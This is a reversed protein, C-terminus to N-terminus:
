VGAEAVVRRIDEITTSSHDNFVSVGRGVVLRLKEAASEYDPGYIHEAGGLMCWCAAEDDLSSCPKGFTDRAVAGKCWRGEDAFLEQLSNFKM